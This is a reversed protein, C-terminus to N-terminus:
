EGCSTAAQRAEGRAYNSSLIDELERARHDSTHCDLTRARANRAIRALEADSLSLADLAEEPRAAILIESGPQYFDDLGDWYDSLVPTGCAAAEFLRGSPCYGMEAMPRRTVNVTMRGSCYFESHRAPELHGIYFMNPLWPFSGDYKSGGIVFRAEQLRRAPEIFLANLAEDRDASYTGMYSLASRYAEVPTAPRHIAPDVSGYLTAVREAGLVRM